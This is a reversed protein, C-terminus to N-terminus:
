VEPTWGPAYERSWLQMAEDSQPRGTEPDVDLARGTRQAVNGLHCLLVSPRVEDIPSHLDAEGRVARVFNAVHNTTLGGSATIDTQDAQGDGRVSKEVINNEMDYVVYGSRDLVVTGETGHISAGRGGSGPLSSDGTGHGKLPTPNCSRGEWAISKEGEFDYGARQTDFAQWDDDPYHYRGGNSTVATPYDVDLAWRCVDIEHTGNNLIEGTGWHWRWHWNYHVLGSAYPKRPAPGQWLDYDLWGPVEAPRKLSLPGRDNSYWARGYYARGILDGSRIQEIVEISRPASRQQNGMQVVQGSHKQQAEVLMDGEAPNHSCPKEVYVHKGADLGMLAAPTHWHDPTAIVLADVADDDLARRVDDVGRPRREQIGAVDAVTREVARRDVDAIYTVTAGPRRAFSKALTNGRNHVGMVAVNVTDSPPAGGSAYASAPGFFSSAVGLGAGAAAAKKIFTRRDDNM